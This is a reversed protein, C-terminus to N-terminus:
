CARWSSPWPPWSGSYAGDPEPAHPTSNPRNGPGGSAHWLKRPPNRGSSLKDSHPHSAPPSPAPSATSVPQGRAARVRAGAAPAPAPAARFARRLEEVVARCSQQREAPDLAMARNLVVDVTPPLDDRHDSVKPRPESMHAWLTAADDDRPFPVQSLRADPVHRLGTLLHGNARRPPPWAIQEPAVYALTGLFHGTTTLGTLSTSRKTLGFDTLYAHRQSVPLTTDSLLINGPKVDRHVM